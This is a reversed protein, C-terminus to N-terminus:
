QKKLQKKEHNEIKRIEPIKLNTLRENMKVLIQIINMQEIM